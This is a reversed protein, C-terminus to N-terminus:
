LTCCKILRHTYYATAQHCSNSTHSTNNHKICGARVWDSVKRNTALTLHKYSVPKEGVMMVRVAYAAAVVESSRLGPLWYQRMFEGMKTGPGVRTLDISDLLQNM